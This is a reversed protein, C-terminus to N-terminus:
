RFAYGETSNRYYIPSTIKIVEFPANPNSMRWLVAQIARRGVYQVLSDATTLDPYLVSIGPDNDFGCLAIDQPVNLGIEMLGTKTVFAYLDNVCVFVTPFEKLSAIWPKINQLIEHKSKGFIFKECLPLNNDTLASKFGEWRDQFSRCTNGCDGIFGLQKHGSAILHSTIECVHEQNCMLLTDGFIHSDSINAATDVFVTPAGCSKLKLYYEKSFPGITVLGVPRDKLLNPPLKLLDEDENSVTNITFRDNRNALEEEFGKILLSWYAVGFQTERIILTFTHNGTGANLHHGNIKKYGMDEATKKIMRKTHEDINTRNNLAKSVTGRSVGLKKAIDTTTIQKSLKKVRNTLFRDKGDSGTWYRTTTLTIIARLYPKTFCITDNQAIGTVLAEIGCIIKNTCLIKIDALINAAFFFYKYFVQCINSTITVVPTQCNRM